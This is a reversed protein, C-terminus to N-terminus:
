AVWQKELMEGTKFPLCGKLVWSFCPFHCTAVSWGPSACSGAMKRAPQASSPPAQYPTTHIQSPGRGRGTGRYINAQSETQWFYHLGAKYFCFMM